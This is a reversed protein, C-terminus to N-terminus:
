LTPVLKPEIKLSKNKLFENELAKSAMYEKYQNVVDPSIKDGISAPALTLDIELDFNPDTSKVLHVRYKAHLGNNVLWASTMSKVFSDAGSLMDTQALKTLITQQNNAIKYLKKLIEKNDM